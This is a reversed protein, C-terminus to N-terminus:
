QDGEALSSPAPDASLAALVSPPIIVKDILHIIGDSAMIDSRVITAGAIKIDRRILVEVQSGDVAEITYDKVKAKLLRATPYEGLFAHHMLLTTLHERNEPALLRTQFEPPLADFAADTPALLTMQGLNVEPDDLGALRTAEMMRNLVGTRAATAKLNEYSCNQQATAQTVACLGIFGVLSACVLMSCKRLMSEGSDM